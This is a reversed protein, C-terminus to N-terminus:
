KILGSMIVNLLKDNKTCLCIKLNQPNRFSYNRCYDYNSLLTVGKWNDESPTGMYRIINFIQSEEDTGCFIPSGNIICILTCMLSWVDVANDYKKSGLLLEPPRYWLTCVENTYKVNRVNIYHDIRSAGFDCYKLSIDPWNGKVLINEPKIDRNCIGQSHMYDLGLLLNQACMEQFESNRRILNNANIYEILDCDMLEFIIGSENKLVGYIQLINKHSLSQLSSIDRIFSIPVGEVCEANNIMKLAYLNTHNQDNKLPVNNSICVKHVTGFTGAGLVKLKLINDKKFVELTKRNKIYYNITYEEPISTSVSNSYHIELFNLGTVFFDLKICKKLGSLYLLNDSNLLITIKSIIYICACKILNEPIKFPNSNQVMTIHCAIWHIATILLSPLITNNLSLFNFCLLRTIEKTYPSCETLDSIYNIYTILNPFDTTYNLIGFVKLETAIIEKETFKYDCFFVYDVIDLCYVEHKKCALSLCAIMYLKSIKLCNQIKQVLFIGEKNPKFLEPLAELCRNFYCITHFIVEDKMNKHNCFKNIWILLSVFDSNTIPNNVSSTLNGNREISRLNELTYFSM